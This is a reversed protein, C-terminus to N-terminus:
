KTVSIKLTLPKHNTTVMLTYLGAALNSVNVSYVSKNVDTATEFVKSGLYNYVSISKVDAANEGLNINVMDASPNPYVAITKSNVADNVSVTTCLANESTVNSSPSFNAVRDTLVIDNSTFDLTPMNPPTIYTAAQTGSVLAAVSENCGTSGTSDMNVIWVDNNAGYSNSYGLVTYGTGGDSIISQFADNSTGGYNKSWLLTGATDVKFALADGGTGFSTTIGTIVIGGNGNSVASTFADEGAGGYTKMWDLTPPFNSVDFRALFIDGLGAGFSRTNGAIYFKGQAGDIIMRADDDGAGGFVFTGQMAGDANALLSFTADNLGITNVGSYGAVLYGTNTGLSKVDYIVENAYPTGVNKSWQITGTADMKIVLGDLRDNNKVRGAMIIGGDNAEKVTTVYDISDTGFVKAFVPMGSSNLRAAFVDQVNPPATSFGNSRGVITTEGTTNAIYMATGFETGLGGVYLNSSATGTLDTTMLLIDNGNGATADTTGVISLNGNYSQFMNGFENGTCDITKQFRLQANGNFTIGTIFTLITIIKLKM